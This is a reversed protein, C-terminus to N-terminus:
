VKAIADCAADPVSQPPQWGWARLVTEFTHRPRWALMLRAKDTRTVPWFWRREPEIGRNKLLACCGPWHRELVPWPNKLLSENIDRQTLPSVPAIHIVEDRLEPRSVALLTAAAADDATLQRALLGLGLQEAPLAHLGCYRLSVVERGHVKAYYSGLQEAQLKTVPYIWDPRPPLSEDLITMGYADWDHGGLVEMTSALVVRHINWRMATCFVSQTGLVNIRIFTAEDCQSRMGGHAAALHIIADCGRAAQMVAESDTVCARVGDLAEVSQALDLAVFEHLGEAMKMVARGLLGCAGTLLIRM